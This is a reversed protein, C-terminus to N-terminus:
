CDVVIIVVIFLHSINNTIVDVYLNILYTNYQLVM